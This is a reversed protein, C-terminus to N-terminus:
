SGEVFHSCCTVSFLLAATSGPVQDLGVHTEVAIDAMQKIPLEPQRRASTRCASRSLRCTVLDCIGSRWPAPCEAEPELEVSSLVASVPPVPRSWAAGLAGPQANWRCPEQGKSKGVCSGRKLQTKVASGVSVRTTAKVSNLRTMLWVTGM